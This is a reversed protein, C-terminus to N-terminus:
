LINSDRLRDLAEKIQNENFHSKATHTQNICESDTDTLKSFYLTTSLLEMEEVSSNGILNIIKTYKDESIEYNEKESEIFNIGDELLYIEYKENQDDYNIKLFDMDELEYLIETLDESYPGYYHIKYNLDLKEELGEQLFFIGKQIYTKGVPKRSNNIFNLVNLIQNIYTM